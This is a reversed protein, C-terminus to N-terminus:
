PKRGWLFYVPLYLHISPDKFDNKVKAVLVGIEAESWGFVRSFIAPTYSDVAQLEQVSQYKGIEKLRPDKPWM